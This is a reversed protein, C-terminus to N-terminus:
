HEKTLSAHGYSSFNVVVPNSRKDGRTSDLDLLNQNDELARSCTNRGRLQNEDGTEATGFAEFKM